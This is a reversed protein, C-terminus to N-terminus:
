RAPRVRITTEADDAGGPRSLVRPQYRGAGAVRRGHLRTILFGLLLGGVGFLAAGDVARGALTLSLADGLLAGGFLLALPLAYVWLAGYLVAKEPVGIVVPDGDRFSLDTVVR